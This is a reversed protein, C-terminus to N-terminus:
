KLWNNSIAALTGNARALHLWQDVFAKFALDDRPLLYAKEGYQFPHDASVTCLEPHLKHQVLTESTDTIMVDARGALLEQFVSLNDTHIRLQANKLHARAFRENTGGPNEIVRVSSQDISDFDTFRALDACRAIASKGDVLYPESFAAQKQRELSVSVGGVAMDCQGATFDHMLSPWTTPVYVVRAALAQAIQGVVEIDLGSYSGDEERYSFPRYDGTTCVRLVHAAAIRDLASATEARAAPVLPGLVLAQVLAASAARGLRELFRVRASGLLAIWVAHRGAKRCPKLRPRQLRNARISSM